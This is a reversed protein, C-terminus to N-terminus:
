SHIANEKKKKKKLYIAYVNVQLKSLKYFLANKSANTVVLWVILFCFSFFFILWVFLSTEIVVRLQGPSAALQILYPQICSEQELINNM